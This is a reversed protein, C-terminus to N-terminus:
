TQSNSRPEWPAEGRKAAQVNVYLLYLLAGQMAFGSAEQWTFTTGLLTIGEGGFALVPRNGPTENRALSFDDDNEWQGLGGREPFAQTPLRQTTGHPM